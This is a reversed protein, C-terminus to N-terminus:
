AQSTAAGRKRFFPGRGRTAEPGAHFIAKVQEAQARLLQMDEGAIRIQILVGVTQRAELQRMDIRAGSIRASLAQQLPAILHQTDHNDKVQL